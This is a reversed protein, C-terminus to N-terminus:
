LTTPRVTRPWRDALESVCMPSREAALASAMAKLWRYRLRIAALNFDDIPQLVDPMWHPLSKIWKTGEAYNSCCVRGFRDSGGPIALSRGPRVWAAYNGLIKSSKRRISPRRGCDLAQLASRFLPLRIDPTSFLPHHGATGTRRRGAVGKTISIAM